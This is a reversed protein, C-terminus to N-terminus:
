TSALLTICANETVYASKPFTSISDSFLISNYTFRFAPHLAKGRRKRSLDVSPRTLPLREPMILIILDIVNEIM